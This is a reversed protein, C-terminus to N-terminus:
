PRKKEEEIENSIYCKVGESGIIHDLRRELQTTGPSHRIDVIFAEDSNPDPKVTGWTLPESSRLAIEICRNVETAIISGIHEQSETTLFSSFDTEGKDCAKDIEEQTFSAAKAGRKAGSFAKFSAKMSSSMSNAKSVRKQRDSCVDRFTRNTVMSTSASNSTDVLGGRALDKCIELASIQANAHSSLCIFLIASMPILKM